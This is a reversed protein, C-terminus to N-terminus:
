LVSHMKGTIRLATEKMKEKTGDDGKQVIQSFNYFVGVEQMRGGESSIVRLPESDERICWDKSLDELDERSVWRHEGLKHKRMWMQMQALNAGHFPCKRVWDIMAPSRKVYQTVAVHDTTQAAHYLREWRDGIRLSVFRHLEAHRLDVAGGFVARLDDLRFFISCTCGNVDMFRCLEAQHSIPFTEGTRIDVAPGRMARKRVAASEICQGVHYFVDKRPAKGAPRDFSNVFLPEGFFRLNAGFIGAEIDGFAMWLNGHLSHRAAHQHFASQYHADISQGTAIDISQVSGLRSFASPDTTEEINYLTARDIADKRRSRSLKQALYVWSPKRHVHLAVRVGIATDRLKPIDAPWRAALADLEERSLWYSSHFGSRLAAVLLQACQTGRFHRQRLFSTPCDLAKRAATHDRAFARLKQPNDTQEINYYVLGQMRTAHAATCRAGVAGRRITIRSRFLARLDSRRVWYPSQLNHTSAHSRLERAFRHPFLKLQTFCLARYPPAATCM